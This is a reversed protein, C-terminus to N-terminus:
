VKKAPRAAAAGELALLRRKLDLGGGFGGLGGGAAVVRHCPVVLPVPNRAMAQGVARAGRPRGVSAALEGYTATRGCPIRRAQRLVRQHFPPLGSLDAPVTFTRRRGALYELIEREAQSAVAEAAPDAGSQAAPVGVPGGPLVVRVVGRATAALAM